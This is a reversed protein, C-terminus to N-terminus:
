GVSKKLQNAQTLHEFRLHDLIAKKRHVNFDKRLELQRSLFAYHDTTLEQDEYIVKMHENKDLEHKKMFNVTKVLKKDNITKLSLKKAIM